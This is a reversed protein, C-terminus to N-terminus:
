LMMSAVLFMVMMCGFLAGAFLTNSNETDLRIRRAKKYLSQSSMRLDDSKEALKNM